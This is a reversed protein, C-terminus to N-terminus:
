AYHLNEYGGIVMESRLYALSFLTSRLLPPERLFSDPLLWSPYPNKEILVPNRILRENVAGLGAMNVLSQLIFFPHSFPDTV